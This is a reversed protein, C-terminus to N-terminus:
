PWTRNFSSGYSQTSVRKGRVLIVVKGDQTTRADFTVSGDAHQLFRVSTSGLPVLNSKAGGLVTLGHLRSGAAACELFGSPWIEGSWTSDAAATIPLRDVIVPIPSCPNIQGAFGALSNATTVDIAFSQSVTSFIVGTSSDRIAAGTWSRARYSTQGYMFLSDIGPVVVHIAYTGGFPIPNSAIKADTVATVMGAAVEQTPRKRAARPDAALWRRIRQEVSPDDVSVSEAWLTQYMEFLEEATMTPRADDTGTIVLPGSPGTLRQPLPFHRAPFIDLTPRGDVWREAPRPRGVYLGRVGVSDFAGDLAASPGCGPNIEYRIFVATRGSARLGDRIAGAQFGTVDEIRMVQAPVASSAYNRPTEIAATVKGPTATALMFTNPGIAPPYGAIYTCRVAADGDASQWWVAAIAITLASWILRAASIFSAAHIIARRAVFPLGEDKNM